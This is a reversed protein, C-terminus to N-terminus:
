MAATGRYMRVICTNTSSYESLPGGGWLLTHRDGLCGQTAQSGSSTESHQQTLSARFIGQIFIYIRWKHMMHAACAWLSLGTWLAFGAM